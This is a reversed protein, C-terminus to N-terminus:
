SKRDGTGREPGDADYSDTSAHTQPVARPVVRGPKRGGLVRAEFEQKEDLLVAPVDLLGERRSRALRHWGDIILVAGGAERIPALILPRQLDVHPIHAENLGIAGLLQFWPQPDVRRVPLKGAIEQAKTIDWIFGLFEFYERELGRSPASATCREDAPMTATNSKSFTTGSSQCGVDRGGGREGNPRGENLVCKFVTEDLPFEAIQGSGKRIHAKDSIGILTGGWPPRDAPLAVVHLGMFPLLDQATPYELYTHAM